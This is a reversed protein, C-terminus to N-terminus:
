YYPLVQSPVGASLLSANTGFRGLVQIRGEEGSYNKDSRGQRPKNRFTVTGDNIEYFMFREPIESSDTLWGDEWEPEGYLHGAKNHGHDGLPVM